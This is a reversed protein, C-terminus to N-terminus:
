DDRLIDDKARWKKRALKVYENVEEQTMKSNGNKESIEQCKRMAAIAESAEIEKIKRVLERVENQKKTLTPDVVGTVSDNIMTPFPIGGISISRKLFMRLATSLDIGLKEFIATAEQKTKDDVRFQVLAM